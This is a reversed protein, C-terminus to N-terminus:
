SRPTPPRKAPAPSTTAGAANQRRARARALSEIDPAILATWGTQHSAGLGKGNDGHFYEHFLVLDKWHPDEAIARNEGHCPRLGSEDPIFLTALRARLFEAVAALDLHKGSGVPCEVKFTDGYVFHYRELAEILLMNLPLWIPGRWNSNGGFVNHKSEGPEYEAKFEEGDIRLVFPRQAHIRSLSRVGFPSLFESEDLVYRLVRKLRERSPIALLGRGSERDFELYSITAALDRRHDLFWNVRQRLKPLEAVAERTIAEAAFLPILGVMSRVRMITPKGDLVIQDYYFGDQEDWLGTGGLRNMADSIAVFHEFFKSAVDEYAPDGRALEVAMSLM